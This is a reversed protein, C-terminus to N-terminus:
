VGGSAPASSGAPKSKAPATAPAKEVLPKLSVTYTVNVSTGDGEKNTQGSIKVSMQEVTRRDLNCRIQGQVNMGLFEGGPLGKAKATGALTITAVRGASTKKVATLKCETTENIPMLAGVLYPGSYTRRAIKWKDGIAVCRAPMYATPSQLVSEIQDLVYHKKPSDLKVPGGAADAKGSFTQKTLKLLRKGLRSNLTEGKSTDLHQDDVSMDAIVRRPKAEISVQGAKPGKKVTLPIEYRLDMTASRKRGRNEISIELEHRHTLLLKEGVQWQRRLNYTKGVAKTQATKEASVALWSCCLIAVMAAFNRLM